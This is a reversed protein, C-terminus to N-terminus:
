NWNRLIQHGRRAELPGANMYHEYMHAPLVSMQTANFIIFRDTVGTGPSRADECLCVHLCFVLAQSGWIQSDMSSLREVGEETINGSGYICLRAPTSYENPRPEGSRNSEANHGATTKQSPRWKIYLPKKSSPHCSYEATPRQFEHFVARHDAYGCQTLKPSASISQM